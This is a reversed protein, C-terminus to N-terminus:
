QLGHEAKFKNIVSLSPMHMIVDVGGDERKIEESIPTIVLIDKGNAGKETRANFVLSNDDLM